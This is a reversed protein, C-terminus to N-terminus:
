STKRPIIPHRVGPTPSKRLLEQRKRLCQEMHDTTWINM